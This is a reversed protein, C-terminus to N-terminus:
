EDIVAGSADSKATESVLGARGATLTGYCPRVVGDYM